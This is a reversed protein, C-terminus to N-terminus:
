SFLVALEDASVSDFRELDASAVLATGCAALFSGRTDFDYPTWGNKSFIPTAQVMADDALKMLGWSGAGALVDGAFKCVCALLPANSARVVWGWQSGELLVGDPSCAYVEEDSVVAVGNLTYATAREMSRWRGDDFRAAYGRDGVVVFGGGPGGRVQWPYVDILTEQVSGAPDLRWLAPAGGRSEGAAVISGAGDGSVSGLRSGLATEVWRAPLAPDATPVCSRLSGDDCAVFIAGDPSRWCSDLPTRTRLLVRTTEARREIVFYDSLYRPRRDADNHVRVIAVCNSLDSGSVRVITTKTAM